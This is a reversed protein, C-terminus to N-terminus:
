GRNILYLTGNELLFLGAQTFFVESHLTSYQVTLKDIVVFDPVRLIEIFGDKPVFINSSGNKQVTAFSFIEETEQLLSLNLNTIKIWYHKLKDNESYCILGIDDKMILAKPRFPLRASNIGNKLKYIVRFIGGALQVPAPYFKFGRGWAPAKKWSVNNNIIKDPHITYMNDNDVGFVLEGLQSYEFGAPIEFNKIEEGNIILKRNKTVIYNTNGLWISDYLNNSLTEISNIKGNYSCDYITTQETTKIYGLTKTFYCTNVNNAIIKISINKNQQIQIPKTKKPIAAKYEDINLLFREGEDFIRKFQEELNKDTIPQYFSPRTLNVDDKLLSIKKIAREELNKWTKHVGKYPHVYTLMRFINIALAYYDSEKSVEGLYYYDRIDELLRGSHKQAPTEFSDVDLIKINGERSTFINYANLDGIVVNNDHAEQVLHILGKAIKIKVSEDINKKQCQNKTFLQSLRFFNKDLLDMSFGIIDGTHSFFLDVPKIFCKGLRSLYSWSDKTLVPVVGPHYIKVVQNSKQPHIVIFGEGGRDIEFDTNVEFLFQGCENYLQIKSMTKCKLLGYHPSIMM